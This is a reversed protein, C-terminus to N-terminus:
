RPMAPVGRGPAQTRTYTYSMYPGLEDLAGRAGIEYVQCVIERNRNTVSAPTTM